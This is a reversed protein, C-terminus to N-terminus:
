EDSSSENYFVTTANTPDLKLGRILVWHLQVRYPRSNEEKFVATYVDKGTDYGDLQEKKGPETISYKFDIIRFFSRSYMRILSEIIRANASGEEGLRQELVLKVNRTLKRTTVIDLTSFGKHFKFKKILPMKTLTCLYIYMLLGVYM